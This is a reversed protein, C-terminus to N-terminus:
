RSGPGAIGPTPLMTSQPDARLAQLLAEPNTPLKALVAYPADFLGTKPDYVPSQSEEACPWLDTHRKMLAMRHVGTEVVLAAVTLSGNSNTPQGTLFRDMAARIRFRQRRTASDHSTRSLAPPPTM